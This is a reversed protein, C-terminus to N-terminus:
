PFTSTSSCLVPLAIGTGDAALAGPRDKDLSVWPGALAKVGGPSPQRLAVLPAPLLQGQALVNMANYADPQVSQGCVWFLRPRRLPCLRAARRRRRAAGASASQCLFGRGPQFHRGHRAIRTDTDHDPVRRRGRRRSRVSTGPLLRRRGQPVEGRRAKVIALPIQQDVSVAFYLRNDLALGDEEVLRVEGRHVGERDLTFRFEYKPANRGASLSLDPSVAEQAGSM